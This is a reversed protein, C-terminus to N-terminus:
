PQVLPKRSRGITEDLGLFWCSLSTSHLQLERSEVALLQFIGLVAPTPLARYGNLPLGCLSSLPAFRRGLVDLERSERQQFRGEQYRM